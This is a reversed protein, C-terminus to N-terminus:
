EAFGGSQPISVTEKLSMTGYWNNVLEEPLYKKDSVPGQAPRQAAVIQVFLLSILALLIIKTFKTNLVVLNLIM